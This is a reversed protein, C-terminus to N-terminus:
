SSEKRSPDIDESSRFDCVGFEPQQAKTYLCIDYKIISDLAAVTTAKLRARKRLKLETHSQATRSALYLLLM